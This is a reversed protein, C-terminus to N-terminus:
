RMIGRGPSPLVLFFVDELTSLSPSSPFELFFLCLVSSLGSFEFYLRTQVNFFSPTLPYYCEPMLPVLADSTHTSFFESSTPPGKKKLLIERWLSFLSNMKASMEYQLNSFNFNKVQHKASTQVFNNVKFYTKTRRCSSM